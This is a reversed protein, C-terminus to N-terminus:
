QLAKYLSETWDAAHALEGEDLPGEGGTVFFGGPEGVVVAGKGRLQRAMKPAAFGMWHVLQGLFRNPMGSKTIRTDFVAIKKGALISRDLKELFNKVPESPGAGHTPTGLIVLDYDAIMAPSVKEIHAMEVPGPIAGRVAEAIIKTNGYKSDYILLTRM